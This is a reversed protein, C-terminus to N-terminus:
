SSIPVGSSGALLAVPFEALLDRLLRSPPILGTIVDKWEAPAGEPLVLGTEGWDDLSSVWRPAVVVAWENEHRRAFACVREAHPGRVELPLYEGRAFLSGHAKRFQLAKAAVLLKTEDRLPNGALERILAIPDEGERRRLIDLAELRRKYDVDRRNDPDVLTFQWFETGQYFDPVGPSAIKLLLQSLGNRAGWRALESQFEFFDPFFHAEDALIGDLFRYVANEYEEHPEIWSSNQKAERLAKSLFEKVRAPFNQVEDPSAPWAGLLTQYIMIEESRSPAPVRKVLVKKEENWLMWRELRRDWEGPMESLVNLRARVDEGRKTDHTATANMTDPSAALRARNFEHFAALSPPPLERLPDGGVENLSLLSNHRYVATDELGKAMVPGSFQQWRMVFDLWQQKRDQLYYPPDLLLVSRLFDLAFDSVEERSTRSRALQLTREIYDRDAPPIAFSHIYTRYVPLCATVEILLLTLESLRIDRAQRHGAALTGLAHVLSNVDGKFLTQMVDKSCRYYVEAFPLEDGSHRRYIEELQVLGEPRIFIGNLVNLFDYGTTGAVPWDPPLQEGPGLIKEVVVYLGQTANRMRQLFCEPDWLGDIHDIRLGTVKGSRVLEATKQNRNEFVEPLEIRLGVLDNIDFFRRYNIEEYGIKWYALRYAQLSLLRDLDDVSGAFFVLADDVAHKVEANDQYARWLNEKVQDKQRRREQIHASDLDDRHPLADLQQLIEPLAPLGPTQDLCRQLILSYSKPDLPMRRDFYRVSIGTDEIKLSLQGSTLVDGYPSGLVPLLVRNEQLEAGKTTAPHWDIDFYCAYASSQGNELVDLWWPNESSAAMHNPVTDLLLGMGYHSLKDAMEDFDQETGLESNVRLPDAIDYGHSSGRRAKYRPSSYLDTIGLESLYPVLDRGDVFGFGAHFQLRYTSGPTRYSM